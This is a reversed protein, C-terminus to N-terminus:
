PVIVGFHEFDFDKKHLKFEKELDERKDRGKLFAKVSPDNLIPRLAARDRAVFEVLALKHDDSEVYTFGIIGTGLNPHMEGLTPAYMPRRMDGAKGTGIIPVVAMVREYMNRPDVRPQGYTTVAMASLCVAIAAARITVVM